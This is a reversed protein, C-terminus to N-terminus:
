RRRVEKKIHETGFFKNNKIDSMLEQYVGDYPKEDIEFKEQIINYEPDISLDFITCFNDTEISM